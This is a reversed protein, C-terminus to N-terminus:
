KEKINLIKNHIHLILLIITFLIYYQNIYNYSNQLIISNIDLKMMNHLFNPDIYYRYHILSIFTCVIITLIDNLKNSEKKLNFINNLLIIWLILFYYNEPHLELTNYKTYTIILNIIYIIIIIINLTKLFNLSKYLSNNKNLNNLIIYLSIFIFLLTSLLYISSNSTFLIYFISIITTILLFLVKLLIRKNM